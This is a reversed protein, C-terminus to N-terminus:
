QATELRMEGNEITLVGADFRIQVPDLNILAVPKHRAAFAYRNYWLVGKAVQGSMAMDLAAGVMRNHDDDRGHAKGPIRANMWNHFEAGREALGPARLVWDALSLAHISCRVMAGLFRCEPPTVFQPRFGMARTLAAAAVHGQPVRTLIEVCDTASFMFRVCQEAFEKAWEGRGEPLVQSHVEYYGDFYKFFFLVGHTGTLCVNAPNAVAASMDLTGQSPDAIWPRIEPHNLVRNLFEADTARRIM